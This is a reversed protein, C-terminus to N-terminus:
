QIREAFKKVRASKAEDNEGNDGNRHQDRGVGTNPCDEVAGALGRHFLTRLRVRGHLCDRGDVTDADGGLLELLSVLLRLLAKFHVRLPLRAADELRPLNSTLSQLFQDTLGFLHVYGLLGSHRDIRRIEILRALLLYRGENLLQVQARRRRDVVDILRQLCVPGTLGSESSRLCTM